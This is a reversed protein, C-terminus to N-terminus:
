KHFMRYWPNTTNVM